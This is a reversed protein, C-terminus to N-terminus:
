GGGIEQIALVSGLRRVGDLIEAAATGGFGLVFGERSAKELDGFV